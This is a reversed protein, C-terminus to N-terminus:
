QIVITVANSPPGMLLSPGTVIGVAQQYSSCLISVTGAGALAAPLQLNIQDLGMIQGQPGAYTVPLPQSGTSCRIAIPVSDFGTGYLSLYVPSGSVNIPVATCATAGCSIVPVPTQTGDPAVRVANAAALGGSETYLGVQYSSPALGIGKPVYPTGAKEIGIWAFVDSSTMVYNIQTPSVYILPALSDGKSDRVHVRIGGLTTPFSDNMASAAATQPALNVGFASTITGTDLPWTWTASSVGTTYLGDGPSDNLLVAIVGSNLSAVGDAIDPQGDGNFDGIAISGHQIFIPTRFTGDGNGALVAGDKTVLDLKGDDNFDAAVAPALRLGQNVVTTGFTGDGNGPVVCVLTSSGCSGALDVRGDGNFDGAVAFGFDASPAIIEMEAAFTGDGRGLAVSFGGSAESFLLDPFGDHNFDAALITTDHADVPLPIPSGFTGDGNGLLVSTGCVLDARKDRNFDAGLWFTGTCATVQIPSAFTGDGNSLLITPPVPTALLLDLKGDGNFDATLPNGGPFSPGTRFTGDGNGFLVFTPLPLQENPVEYAIDPKGDGNFDAVATLAPEPPSGTGIHTNVPAMFSIAQGFVFGASCLLGAIRIPIPSMIIRPKHLRSDM